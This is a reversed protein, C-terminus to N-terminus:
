YYFGLLLLRIAGSVAKISYYSIFVHYTDCIYYIVRIFVIYTDCFRVLCAAERAFARLSGSLM